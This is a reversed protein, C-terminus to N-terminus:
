NFESFYEQIDEIEIALSPDAYLGLLAAKQLLVQLRRNLDSEISNVNEEIDNIEIGISVNSHVGIKAQQTKLANQRRRHIKLLKIQHSM